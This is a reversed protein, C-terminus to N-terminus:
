AKGSQDHLRVHKSGDAEYVALMHTRLAARDDRKLLEIMAKVEDLTPPKPELM